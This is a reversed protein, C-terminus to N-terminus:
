GMEGEEPQALARGHHHGSCCPTWTLRHLPTGPSLPRAPGTQHDKAGPRDADADPDGPRKPSRTRLLNDAQSQAEAARKTRLPAGQEGEGTM